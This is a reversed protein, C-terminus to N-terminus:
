FARNAASEENEVSPDAVNRELAPSDATLHDGM